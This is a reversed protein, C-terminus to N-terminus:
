LCPLISPSSCSSLSLLLIIIPVCKWNAQINYYSFASSPIHIVIRNFLNPFKIQNSKIQIKNLM